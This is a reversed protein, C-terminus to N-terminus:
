ESLPEISNDLLEVVENREIGHTVIRLTLEVAEDQTLTLRYGNIRLFTSCAAFAVRKNGQEFAHNNSLSILYAAAMETLSEYLYVGGFTQQPQDVASRLSSENIVNLSETPSYRKIGEEHLILVQEVTLFVFEEEFDENSM